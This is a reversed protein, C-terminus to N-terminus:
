LVFQRTKIESFSNWEKNVYQRNRISYFYHSVNVGFQDIDKASLLESRISVLRIQNETLQWSMTNQTVLSQLWCTILLCFLMPDNSLSFRWLLSQKSWFGSGSGSTCFIYLNDSAWLIPENVCLNTCIPVPLFMSSRLMQLHYAISLTSNQDYCKRYEIELKNTPEMTLYFWPITLHQLSIKIM